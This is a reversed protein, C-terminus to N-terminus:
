GQEAEEGSDAPANLNLSPLSFSLFDSTAMRM